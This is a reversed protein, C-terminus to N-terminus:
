SLEPKVDSIQFHALFWEFHPLFQQYDNTVILKPNQIGIITMKAGFKPGASSLFAISVGKKAMELGWFLIPPMTM